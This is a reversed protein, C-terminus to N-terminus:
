YFLPSDRTCSTTKFSFAMPAFSVQSALTGCFFLVFTQILACDVRNEMRVWFRSIVM